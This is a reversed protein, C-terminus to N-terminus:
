FRFLSNYIHQGYAYSGIINLHITDSFTKNHVFEAKTAGVCKDTSTWGYGNALAFEKQKAALMGLGTWGAAEINEVGLLNIDCTVLGNGDDTAVKLRNILNGINTVINDMRASNTSEGLDNIALLVSAWCLELKSIGQEWQAANMSLYNSAQISRNGIKHCRVGYTGYYCDMGFIISNDALSTIVVSTIDTGAVGFETEQWRDTSNATIEVPSGGNVSVNFHANKYYRIKFRDLYGANFSLVLSAGNGFITHACCIGLCQSAQGDTSGDLGTVNGSFVYSWHEYMDICGFMKGTGGDRAFDLWGLGGFGYEDWLAKAVWKDYSEFGNTVGGVINETGQTWSDGIFGINAFIDKLNKVRSLKSWLFPTKAKFSDVELGDVKDVRENLIEIQPEVGGKILTMTGNNSQAVLYSVGSPITLKISNNFDSASSVVINEDADLFYWARGGSGGKATLRFIDGQSVPIKVSLATAYSTETLAQGITTGTFWRGIVFDKSLDIGYLEDMQSELTQISISEGIAIHPLVDQPTINGGSLFMFIVQYYYGAVLTLDQTTQNSLSTYSGFSYDDNLTIYGAIKINDKCVVRISALKANLIKTSVRTLDKTWGDSWIHGNKLGYSEDLTANRIAFSDSGITVIGDIDGNQVIQSIFVDKTKQILDTGNWIYLQNDYTYIAGLIPQFGNFSTINGSVDVGLVEIFSKNNTYYMYDGVVWDHWISANTGMHKIAFMKRGLQNLQAATAIGTVEKTWATDWKLIAVEGDAVVLGGLNTYTGPTTSIYFCKYDPTQATEPNTPTAMGMFQYGEGLTTVMANLVSNLNEGTIEQKGNQYVKADIDAKLLQYNAM